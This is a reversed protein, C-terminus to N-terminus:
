TCMYIYIYLFRRFANSPLVAHPPSAFPQVPCSLLLLTRHAPVWGTPPPVLLHSEEGWEGSETALGFLCDCRSQELLWAARRWEVACRHTCRRACVQGSKCLWVDSACRPRCDVVRRTWWRRFEVRADVVRTWSVRVVTRFLFLFSPFLFFFFPPFLPPFLLLPSVGVDGPWHYIVIMPWGRPWRTTTHTPVFTSWGM